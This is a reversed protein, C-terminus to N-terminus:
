DSTEKNLDTESKKGLGSIREKIRELSSELNQAEQQLWEEEKQTSFPAGYTAMPGRNKWGFSRGCGMGFGRGRRLGQNRRSYRGFNQEQRDNWEVGSCYGAARGTMSGQGFPGTRDGGPM